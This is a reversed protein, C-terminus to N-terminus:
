VAPIRRGPPGPLVGGVLRSCGLRQRCLKPRKEALNQAPEQPWGSAQLKGHSRTHSPDPHQQVPCSSNRSIICRSIIALHPINNSEIRFLSKRTSGPVGGRTTADSTVLHMQQMHTPVITYCIRATSPFVCAMEIPGTGPQQSANTVVMRPALIKQQESRMLCAHLQVSRDQEWAWMRM